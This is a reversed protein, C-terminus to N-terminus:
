DAPLELLTNSNLQTLPPVNILTVISTVALSHDRDHSRRRTGLYPTCAMWCYMLMTHVRLFLLLCVISSYLFVMPPVPIPVFAIPRYVTM